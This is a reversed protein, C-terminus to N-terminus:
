IIGSDVSNISCDEDGVLEGCRQVLRWGKIEDDM